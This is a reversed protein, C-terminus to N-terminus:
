GSCGLKSASVRLTEFKLRANRLRLERFMRRMNSELKTRSARSLYAVIHRCKNREMFEHKRYGSFAKLYELVRSMEDTDFGQFTLQYERFKPKKSQRSHRPGFRERPLHQSLEDVLRATETELAPAVASAVCHRDCDIPTARGSRPLLSTEYVVRGHPLSYIRAQLEIRVAEGNGGHDKIEYSKVAILADARSHMRRAERLWDAASHMFRKGLRQRRKFWEDNFVTHGYEGLARGILALVQRVVPDGNELSETDVDDPVLLLELGRAPYLPALCLGLLAAWVLCLRRGKIKRDALRRLSATM